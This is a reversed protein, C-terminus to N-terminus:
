FNARRKPHIIPIPHGETNFVYKSLPLISDDSFLLYLYKLTESLLFSEMKDEYEVPVQDVNHISAYGGTPIRCHTEIAQFIRWGHRRYRVDGTLRFAIFLSEITEPRLVYRADYPAPEGPKAGKIYWDTPIGSGVVGDSPIRFHVIEPPLGTATDHTLMCTEILEVGSKWDRIGQLTLENTRPPVSVPPAIAGSTVAGLMLSGGFFCALHDQKPALRWTVPGGAEEREPILESTYTLQAFQSKQILHSHVGDMAFDYMEKYVPETMNTQLYQKLLYEYFSDGRSGLRIESLAFRGEDPNMFVSALGTTLSSERILRMVREGAVWYDYNGTLFSMYRLELQLTAVEATGVLGKNNPDKVGKRQALNVLSVPLGSPTDFAHMIREVLDKARDIYLTDGTLTYASQLGGLVRITTEFTSFEADREFTMKTEVWKRARQYEERLGMIVLTDISDIVTFGIGGAATLNTGERSIPHYEDDGMADREYALWAHKFAAVIADRKEIDPVFGRPTPVTQQQPVVVDYGLFEYLPHTVLGPNQYLVAVVVVLTVVVLLSSALSGSDKEKARYQGNALDGQKEGAKAKPANTTNRKRLKTEAAM